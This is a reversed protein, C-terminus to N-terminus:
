FLFAFTSWWIPQLEHSYIWCCSIKRRLYRRIDTEAMDSCHFMGFGLRRSGTYSYLLSWRIWSHFRHTFEFRWKTFHLCTFTHVRELKGHTKFSSKLKTRLSTSLLHLKYQTVTSFGKQKWVEAWMRLCSSKRRLYQRIDTGVMHSCHFRCRGQLRNGIHSYQLSWRFWSYLRYTSMSEFKVNLSVFRHRRTVQNMPLLPLSLKYDRACIVMCKEKVLHLGIATFQCISVSM